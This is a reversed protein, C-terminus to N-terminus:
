NFNGENIKKLKRSITSQNVELVDAIKVTSNFKSQALKLLQREALEICEKLPLIDLVQVKDRNLSQNMFGEPLFSENIKRGDSIVILREVLNQLERVNGPWNYAQLGEIIDISLTKNTDYKNNFQEIFHHILPLIDERRERLPPIKLPIVNLRYYLDERFRGQKIEEPLNRNTAAIIRVNVNITKKGGIRRIEQEQIVRLLKVQLSIPMEAIEDLFLTGETALEFLGMKGEKKAGTFAGSDYGFLESELLNEPIAGCNIKIYPKSKRLSANHIYNAFVEKGVGSEGLILVTSDVHAILKAWELSEEMVKSNFILKWEEVKEKRFEMLEHKYGHILKKMEDIEAQLQSIETIDRSANVVRIVNGNEDKIPTGIVMLRRGNKTTQIASIKEGKELVLRTISPKYIGEKELENVNKGVLEGENKGWIKTCASSVRLTNGKADSVYLVDYSSDFLAKLDISEDKYTEYEEPVTVDPQITALVGQFDEAEDNLSSFHFIFDKAQINIKKNHLPCQTTMVKNVFSKIEENEFYLSDGGTIKKAAENMFKDNKSTHYLVTAFPLSDIIRKLNTPVDEYTNIDNMFKRRWQMQFNKFIM